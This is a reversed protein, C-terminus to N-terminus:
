VVGTLIGLHPFVLNRCIEGSKMPKRAKKMEESLLDRQLYPLPNLVKAKQPSRPYTSSPYSERSGSPNIEIVHDPYEMPSSFKRTSFTAKPPNSQHYHTKKHIRHLAKTGFNNSPHFLSSTLHQVLSSFSRSPDLQYAGDQDCVSSKKSTGAQNQAM